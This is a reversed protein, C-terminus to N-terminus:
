LKKKGTYLVCYLCSGRSLYLYYLLISYLRWLGAVKAAATATAASTHRRVPVGASAWGTVLQGSTNSLLVFGNRVSWVNGRYLTECGCDMRWVQCVRVAFCWLRSRLQGPSLLSVKSYRWLLYSQQSARSCFWLTVAAAPSSFIIM